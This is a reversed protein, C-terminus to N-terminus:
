ALVNEVEDAFPGSHDSKLPSLNILKTGCAWSDFHTFSCVKLIFLSAQRDQRHRGSCNWQVHLFLDSSQRQCFDGCFRFRGRRRSLRILLTRSALAPL